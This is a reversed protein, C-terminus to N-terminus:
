ASKGDYEVISLKALDINDLCRVNIARTAKGDPGTGAGFSLIGCTSCFYHHIVKKNFQYDTLAEEGSLLTFAEEPVFALLSGRKSCMSCNCSIVQGIDMEVEFRVKQCHCGGTYKMRLMKIHIITRFTLSEFGRYGKPYVAKGLRRVRGSHSGEM